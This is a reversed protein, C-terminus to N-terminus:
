KKKAKLSAVEAELEAIVNDVRAKSYGFLVTPIRQRSDYPAASDLSEDPKLEGLAGTAALSFVGIVVLGVIFIVWYM